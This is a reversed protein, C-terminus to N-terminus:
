PRKCQYGEKKLIKIELVSNSKLSTVKQKLACKKARSIINIHLLTFYLINQLFIGTLEVRSFNRFNTHLYHFGYYLHFVLSLKIM